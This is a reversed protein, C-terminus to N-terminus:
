FSNKDIDFCIPSCSPVLPFPLDDSPAIKFALGIFATINVGSTVCVVTDDNDYAYVIDKIAERIRLQCDKWTETKTESKGGKLVQFVANFENFRPEEFIPVNIHKNIIKATKACRYYPSTYIAKFKSYKTMKQLIEAVIEADKEGLSEIDDNQSPPNGTKRLAHHVYIIRM